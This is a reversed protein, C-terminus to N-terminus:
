GVSGAGFRAMRKVTRRMLRDEEKEDARRWGAATLRDGMLIHRAYDLVGALRAHAALHELVAKGLEESEELSGVTDDSVQPRRGRRTTSPPSVKIPTEKSDESRTPAPAVQVRRGFTRPAADVVDKSKAEDEDLVLGQLGATTARDGPPRGGESRGTTATLGFDTLEHMGRNAADVARAALIAADEEVHSLRRGRPNGVAHDMKVLVAAVAQGSKFYQEFLVEHFPLLNVRQTEAAGMVKLQQQYTRYFNTGVISIPMALYVIGFLMALVAVLRGLVTTPAIDGYGVSTMTAVVVWGARFVDTTNTLECVNTDESFEALYLLSAFMAMAVVFFFLPITLPAASKKMSKVLIASGTFHEAVRFVRLMVLPELFPRADKWEDVLLFPLPVLALLDSYTSFSLWFYKCSPMAVLRTLWLLAFFAHCVVGTWKLASTATTNNALESMTSMAWAMAGCCFLVIQTVWLTRQASTVPTDDLLLFLQQRITLPREEEEVDDMSHHAASGSTEMSRFRRAHDSGGGYIDIIQGVTAMFGVHKRVWSRLLGRIKKRDGLKLRKSGVNAMIISLEDQSMREENRAATAAPDAMASGRVKEDVVADEGLVNVIRSIQSSLTVYNDTAIHHFAMKTSETMRGLLPLHSLLRRKKAGGEAAEAKAEEVADFFSNGVIALPMASFLVGFVMMLSAWARGLTTQPVMDGYGVTTMTVVSFYLTNIVDLFVPERQEGDCESFVNELLFLVSAFMTATVALFFLPVLLAQYSRQIAVQLVRTGAFHRSLKFIRLIKFAQLARLLSGGENRNCHDGWPEGNCVGLLFYFPFISVLDIWVMPDRFFSGRGGLSAIYRLLLEVTFLLTLVGETVVWVIKPVKVVGNHEDLEPLTELAFALASVVIITILFSYVRPDQDLQQMFNMNLRELVKRANRVPAETFVMAMRQQAPTRHAFANTAKVGGIARRAAESATRMSPMKTLPAAKRAQVVFLAPAVAVPPLASFPDYLTLQLQLAAAALPPPGAVSVM